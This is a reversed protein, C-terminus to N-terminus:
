KGLCEHIYAPISGSVKQVSPMHEEASSHARSHLFICCAHSTGLNFDSMAPKSLLSRKDPLPPTFKGDGASLRQRSDFCIAGVIQQCTCALLDVYGANHTCEAAATFSRHNPARAKDHHVSHCKLWMYIQISFSEDASIHYSAELGYM